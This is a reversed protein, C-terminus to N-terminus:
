HTENQFDIIQIQDAKYSFGVSIALCYQRNMDINNFAIGFDKDNSYYKLTKNKVNIRMEIIDADTILDRQAQNYQVFFLQSSDIEKSRLRNTDMQWAYYKHNSTVQNSSNRHNLRFCTSNMPLEDNGEISVIGICPLGSENEKKIRFTWKYISDPHKKKDVIVTGYASCYCLEITELIDNEERGNSSLIMLQDGHKGFQETELYYLVCLNKIGIPVDHTNIEKEAMRIYGMTITKYRKNMFKLKSFTPPM